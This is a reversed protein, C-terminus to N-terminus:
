SLPANCGAGRVQLSTYPAHLVELGRLATLPLMPLEFDLRCPPGSQHFHLERLGGGSGASSAGCDSTTGRCSTSGDSATRGAATLAPPPMALLALLGESPNTLAPMSHHLTFGTLARLATLGKLEAASEKSMGYLVLRRLQPLRAIGAVM